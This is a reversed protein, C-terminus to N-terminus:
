SLGSALLRINCPINCVAAVQTQLHSNLICGWMDILVIDGQM